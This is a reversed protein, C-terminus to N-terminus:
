YEPLDMQAAICDATLQPLFLVGIACYPICWYRNLIECRLAEVEVEGTKIKSNKMERNINVISRGAGSWLLM